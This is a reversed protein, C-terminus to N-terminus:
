FSTYAGNRPKCLINSYIHDRQKMIFKWPSKSSATISEVTKLDYHLSGYKTKVLKRWLATKKWVLNGFDVFGIPIFWKRM